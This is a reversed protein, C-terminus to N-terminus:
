DIVAKTRKKRTFDTVTTHSTRKQSRSGEELKTNVGKLAKEEM